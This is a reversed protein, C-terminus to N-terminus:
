LFLLILPVALPVIYAEYNLNSKHSRLTEFDTLTMCDESAHCWATQCLHKSSNTRDFGQLNQIVSGMIHIVCGLSCAEDTAESM